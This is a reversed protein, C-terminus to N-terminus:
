AVTPSLRGRKLSKLNPMELRLRDCGIPLIGHHACAQLLLPAPFNSKWGSLAQNNMDSLRHRCRHLLLPM